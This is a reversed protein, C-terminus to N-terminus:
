LKWGHEVGKSSQPEHLCIVHGSQHAVNLRVALHPEFSKRTFVLPFPLERPLVPILQQTVALHARGENEQSPKAGMADNLPSSSSPDM